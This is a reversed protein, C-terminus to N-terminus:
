HRITKNKKLVVTKISGDSFLLQSVSEGRAILGGMKEREMGTLARAEADIDGAIGPVGGHGFYGLFIVPDKAGFRKNRINELITEKMKRVTLARKLFDKRLEWGKVPEGKTWRTFEDVVASVEQKTKPYYSLHAPARLIHLDPTTHAFQGVLPIKKDRFRMSLGQRVFEGTEIARVLPSYVGNFVVGRNQLDRSVQKSRMLENAIREGQAMSKAEGPLDLGYLHEQRHKAPYHGGKLPVIGFRSAVDTRPTNGVSEHRMVSMVAVLRPSTKRHLATPNLGVRSSNPPQRRGAPIRTRASKSQLKM